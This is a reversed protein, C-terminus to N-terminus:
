FSNLLSKKQIHQIALSLINKLSKIDVDKNADLYFVKTQKRGESLLKKHTIKNGNVFSIYIVKTKRNYPIYCMWKGKYYFFPTNFKWQESIDPDHDLIFQRIFLLCGREPEDLSFFFNDLQNLM